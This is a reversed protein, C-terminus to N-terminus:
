NLLYVGFNLYGAFVTWLIYPVLLFAAPKSIEYFRKYTIIIFLLMAVLWVFAFLYWNLNFFIISWFFNFILQIGYPILAKLAKEDSVPATYIIYSSIGMLIYLVTWVVPFLWGPPSLPPKNLLAFDKMSGMTLLASIGGVLLPILIFIVLTKIKIKM